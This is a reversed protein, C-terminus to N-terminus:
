RRAELYHRALEQFRQGRQKYDAFLDFSATAPSLLLVDGPQALGALSSVAGALGSSWSIPAAGRWAQEFVQRSQGFLAVQRVKDRVLDYVLGPDGGKFQGGALLLIPAQFSDLAARLSEISTGKSDDVVIVGAFTGVIELRHPQPQYSELAKAVIQEDLGWYSCALYAAEINGQNHRGPLLPCSLRQRPVFYTRDAQTFSRGELEQKLEFPAIAL